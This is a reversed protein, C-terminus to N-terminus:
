EYLFNCYQEQTMNVLNGRKLYASCIHLISELLQWQADGGTILNHPHMWLHVVRNQKIADEIIHRWRLKTIGCPVRKRLGVQWNLFYGSPIKVIGDAIIGRQANQLLNLENMFNRFSILKKGMMLGDRYGIFGYQKLLDAFGVHNRPFVFTHNVVGKLLAIKKVMALEYMIDDYSVLSEAFPIHTFGHSALEHIRCDKVGNFIESCFWGDYKKLEMERSFNQLWSNGDFKMKGFWNRNEFYEDPSLTFAATFAFTAAINYQSLLGLLRRYVNKLNTNTLHRHHYESLHDVFGWKGECDFSLILIGQGM